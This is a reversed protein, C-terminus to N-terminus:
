LAAGVAQPQDPPPADATSPVTDPDPAPSPDAPAPLSRLRRIMGKYPMGEKCGVPQVFRPNGDMDYSCADSLFEVIVIPGRPTDKYSLVQMEVFTVIPVGEFNKGAFVAPRIPGGTWFLASLPKTYYIVGFGLNDPIVDLIDDFDGDKLRKIGNEVLPDMTTYDRCSAHPDPDPTTDHAPEPVEGCKVDDMPVLVGDALKLGKCSSDFQGPLPISFGTSVSAPRVSIRGSGELTAFGTFDSLDLPDEPFKLSLQRDISFSKSV